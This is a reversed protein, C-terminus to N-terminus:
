QETGVTEQLREHTSNQKFDHDIVQGDDTFDRKKVRLDNFLEKLDKIGGVSLWITTVFFFVIMIRYIYYYFNAWARDSLGWLSVIVAMGGFLVFFILTKGIAIGYIIKDGVTFENTIGFADKISLRRRKSIPEGAKDNIHDSEIRYKGRHLLKELNFDVRRSFLSISVYMEVSTIIAFFFVRQGNMILTCGPWPTHSLAWASQRIEFFSVLAAVVLIGSFAVMRGFFKGSRIAMIRGLLIAAIVGLAICYIYIYQGPLTFSTGYWSTWLQECILGGGALIAGSFLAGYAAAAKGWTTYLGGMIVIGIGGMWIAGTLAMFYLIHQTQRFVISFFCIFIAVFIISLRLAWIHQTTSFPTKRLPIVVDQVFISGWSHLYTDNCSIHAALMVAAFAGLFGIPLYLTMTMPVFMQDRVEGNEIRSLTNTVQHAQSAYDSNHMIMYAIFPMLMIAYTFGWFRFNGLVGAIKAEYPSKACCNFAQTGQWALRNMIINLLIVVFYFPDFDSQGTHLPNVMSKGAEANLLSEFVNSLSYKALILVIISLMVINTFISQFFDTVLITIQGGIFTFYLSIATLAIILTCYTSFTIGLFSYQDPLNCYYIFFNAAAAPFIGYNIIGSIWCICAAVIRFRRSYRAEFFQALTMVRTERYRYIVFGTLTLIMAIPTNFNFWWEGAFGVKSYLQWNALITILGLGAVSGDSLTLLYRGACRNAALFDATSKVYQKTTYAVIVFLATTGFVITWDIWHLSM